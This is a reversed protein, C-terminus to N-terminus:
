TGLSGILWECHYMSRRWVHVAGALTVCRSTAYMAGNRAVSPPLNTREKILVEKGVLSLTTGLAGSRDRPLGKPLTALSGVVIEDTM